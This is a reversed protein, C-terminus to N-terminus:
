ATGRRSAPRPLKSRRSATAAAVNSAFGIGRLIGRFWVRRDRVCWYRGDAPFRGKRDLLCHGNTTTASAIDMGRPPILHVLPQRLRSGDQRVM